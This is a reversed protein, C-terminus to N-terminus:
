NVSQIKRPRFLASRLRSQFDRLSDGQDLPAPTQAWDQPSHTAQGLLSPTVVLLLTALTIRISATTLANHSLKSKMILFPLASLFRKQHDAEAHDAKM